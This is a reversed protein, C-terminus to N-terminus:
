DESGLLRSLNGPGHNYMITCQITGSGDRDFIRFSERYENLRAASLRRVPSVPKPGVPVTAEHPTPVIELQPKPASSPQAAPTQM